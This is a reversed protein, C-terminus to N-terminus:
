RMGTYTCTHLNQLICLSAHILATMGYAYVCTFFYMLRKIISNLPFSIRTFDFKYKALGDRKYM